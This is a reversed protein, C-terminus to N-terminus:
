IKDVSDGVCTANQPLYCVRRVCLIPWQLFYDYQYRSYVSVRVFYLNNM